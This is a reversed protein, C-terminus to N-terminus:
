LLLCQSVQLDEQANSIMDFPIGMTQKRYVSPQQQLSHMLQLIMILVYRAANTPRCSFSLSNDRRLRPHVDPLQIALNIFSRLSDM